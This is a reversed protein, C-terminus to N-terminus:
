SCRCAIFELWRPIDRPHLDAVAQEGHSAVFLTGFRDIVFLAPLDEDALGFREALEGSGDRMAPLHGTEVGPPAVVVIEGAEAHAADRQAAAEAVWEVAADGSGVFVIALNRRMYYDRTRWVDGAPNTGTLNPVTEGRAPIGTRRRTRTVM